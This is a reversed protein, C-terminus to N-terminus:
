IKNKCEKRHREIVKVFHDNFKFAVCGLSGTMSQTQNSHIPYLPIFSPFRKNYYKIANCIRGWTTTKSSSIVTGELTLHKVVYWSFCLLTKSQMFYLLKGSFFFVLTKIQKVM